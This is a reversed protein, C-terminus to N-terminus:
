KIERDCNETKSADKGDLMVQDSRRKREVEAGRREEWGERGRKEM